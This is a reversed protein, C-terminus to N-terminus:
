WAVDHVEEPSLRALLDRVAGADFRPDGSEIVLFYRDISAREFGPVAFMPHYPEPLRNLVIMGIVATFAAFLITLEFTVPIFAPWSLLPRGGINLPYDVASIWWQGFFGVSAGTLGAILVLRSVLSKEHHVVEESIAEVPYPTYADLQHYGAEHAAEVAELLGQATAFSAAVGYLPHRPIEAEM